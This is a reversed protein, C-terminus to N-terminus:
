NKSVFGNGDNPNVPSYASYFLNSVLQTEQGWYKCTSYECPCLISLEPSNVDERISWDKRIARENKRGVILRELTNQIFFTPFPSNTYDESFIFFINSIIQFGLKQDLPFELTFFIFIIFFDKWFFFIRGFLFLTGFWFETFSKTMLLLISQKVITSINRKPLMM